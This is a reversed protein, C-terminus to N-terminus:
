FLLPQEPIQPEPKPDPSLETFISLQNRPEIGLALFERDRKLQNLRKELKRIEADVQRVTRKRMAAIIAFRDDSAFFRRYIVAASYCEPIPLLCLVIPTQSLTKPCSIEMRYTYPFACLQGPTPELIGFGYM